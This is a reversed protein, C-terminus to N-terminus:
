VVRSDPAPTGLSPGLSNGREGPTTRWLRYNSLVAKEEVTLPVTAIATFGMFDDPEEYRYHAIRHRRLKDSVRELAEKDPVGIMVINPLIYTAGLHCAM